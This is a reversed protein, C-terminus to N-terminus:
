FHLKISRIKESDVPNEGFKLNLVHGIKIVVFPIIKFNFIKRYFSFNKRKKRYESTSSKTTKLRLDPHAVLSVSPAFWSINKRIRSPWDAIEVQNERFDQITKEIALLNLCYGVACDPLYNVHLFNRDKIKTLIGFQEPFLHIGLPIKANNNSDLEEILTMLENIEFKIIVDEELILAWDRSLTKARLRALHHSVSIAMEIPEVGKAPKYDGKLLSNPTAAEIIEVDFFKSLQSTTKLGAPSNKLAIILVVLSKKKIAM